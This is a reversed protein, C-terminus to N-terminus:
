GRCIFGYNILYYVGIIIIDTLIVFLFDMKGSHINTLHYRKTKFPYLWPVGGKTFTDSIIHSMFGTIIGAWLLAFETDIYKVLFIIMPILWLVSHTITRHGFLKNIIKAYPKVVKGLKSNPMDIDPLLSAFSSCVVMSIIEPAGVNNLESSVMACGLGAITGCILHSKGKM